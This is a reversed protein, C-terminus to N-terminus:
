TPTSPSPPPTPLPSPPPLPPPSSSNPPAPLHTPPLIAKRRIFRYFLSFCYTDDTVLATPWFVNCLLLSRIVVLSDLICLGAGTAISCGSSTAYRESNGIKCRLVYKFLQESPAREFRAICPIASNISIHFSNHASAQYSIQNPSIALTRLFNALIIPACTWSTAM